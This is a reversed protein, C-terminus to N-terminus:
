KRIICDIDEFRIPGYVRSDVSNRFNDGCVYFEDEKLLYETEVSTSYPSEVIDNIYLKDDCQKITDGEKALVRKICTVGNEKFVVIDGIDIDEIDFSKDAIVLQGDSYEPRM